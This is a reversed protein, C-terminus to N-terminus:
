QQMKRVFRLEINGLWSNDFASYRALLRESAPVFVYEGWGSEYLFTISAGASLATELPRSLVLRNAVRYFVTYLTNNIKFRMGGFVGPAPGM